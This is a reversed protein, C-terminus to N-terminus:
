KQLEWNLKNSKQLNDKVKLLQLNSYHCLEIVEQETKAESLPIIHDIHVKEKGDWEYHYNNKFTKLLYYYFDNLPMKIIEETKKNKTLGKTKFCRLIENRIVYKMKILPNEKKRKLQQKNIKEKNNERYIKIKIKREEKHREYSKKNWNNVKERNNNRYEKRKIEIKEKNQKRYEVMYEQKEKKHNQTYIRNIERDCERCYTYVYQKGNINRIRFDAINKETKCKKCIKTKM